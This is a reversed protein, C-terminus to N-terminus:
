LREITPAPTTERPAYTATTVNLPPIVLSSTRKKRSLNMHFDLCADERMSREPFLDEPLFTDGKRDDIKLLSIGDFCDTDKHDIAGERIGLPLDNRM